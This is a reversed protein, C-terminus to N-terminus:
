LWPSRNPHRGGGAHNKYEIKQDVCLIKFSQYDVGRMAWQGGISINGLYRLYTYLSVMQGAVILARKATPPVFKSLDLETWDIASGGSLIRLYTTREENYETRREIGKGTMRFDLFDLSEDNKVAGIGRKYAYGAPLTPSTQSASLLGVVKPRVSYEEGSTFIDADLTLETESVIETVKAWTEDTKNLVADDVLIGDSQFTAGSDILKDATTQTANGNCFTPAILYEHGQTQFIYATLTLQTESDISVVRATAQTTLNTVTDGVIVSDSIFTATSDILKNEAISSISGSCVRSSLRKLLWVFYWAEAEEGTDLGNCGNGEIDLSVDLDLNIDALENDDRCRGRKVHISHANVYELTLGEISGLESGHGM